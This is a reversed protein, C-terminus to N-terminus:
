PKYLIIEMDDPDSYVDPDGLLSGRDSLTLAQLFTAIELVAPWSVDVDMLPYKPYFPHVPM